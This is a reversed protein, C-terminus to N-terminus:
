VVLLEFGDVTLEEALLLVDLEDLAVLFLFLLVLYFIDILVFEFVILFRIVRVM